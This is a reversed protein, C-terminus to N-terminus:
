VAVELSAIQTTQVSQPMRAMQLHGLHASYEVPTMIRVGACEQEDRFPKDLTVIVPADAAIATGVVHVDNPDSKLLTPPLVIPAVFHRALDSMWRVANRAIEPSYRERFAERAEVIISDSLCIEYKQYPMSRVLARASGRSMFADVYINADLVVRKSTDPRPLVIRLLKSLRM